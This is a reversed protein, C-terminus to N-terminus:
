CPFDKVPDGNALMLLDHHMRSQPEHNPYYDSVNSAEAHSWPLTYPQTNTYAEVARVARSQDKDYLHLSCAHHHYYGPLLGLSGAIVRQIVMNAFVDNPLGLWADNSRMHCQMDLRGDRVLFQWALTCPYDRKGPECDDAPSWLGVIAQRSHEDADLRAIVAEFQDFGFHQRCRWGYAGHANSGDETYQAYSPAWRLLRTVDAQGELYWLAESAAYRPNLKRIPNVVLWQMTEHCLTFGVNLLELSCGGQRVPVSRGCSLLDDLLVTWIMDATKSFRAM